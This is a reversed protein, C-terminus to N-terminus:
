RREVQPLRRLIPEPSQGELGLPTITSLTWTGGFNVWDFQWTSRVPRDFARELTTAVTTTVVVHSQQQDADMSLIYVEKVGPNDLSAKAGALIMERNGYQALTTGADMTSSMREWDHSRYADILARTMRLTRERPTEVLYSVLGVAVAAVVLGWGLRKLGKDLRRNGTWFVFAGAAFLAAPLWWPTDFLFDM